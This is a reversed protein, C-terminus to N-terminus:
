YGRQIREIDNRDKFLVGFCPLDLANDNLRQRLSEVKNEPVGLWLSLARLWMLLEGTAPPKHLGQRESLSIFRSIALKILDQSLAPFAGNHAEVIRGLLDQDLTIHHFVCRRLFASPLQRESNSTIFVLPRMGDSVRVRGREDNGLEPISFAMQDIEHLLDNPFDRPAKDIEDILVVRPQKNRDDFAQWLVGRSLYQFKDLDKQNDQSHADHFYRVTDFQYLLDKAKSDSKVQFHLVEGLGLTHAVYYATQTKGTGADGTLLLPESVAISTNIAENLAESSVFWSAARELNSHSQNRQALANLVTQKDETDQALKILDFPYTNM